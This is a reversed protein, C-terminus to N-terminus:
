PKKVFRWPHNPVNPYGSMLVIKIHPWREHVQRALEIGSMDPMRVDTLLLATEPYVNLIELARRGSYASKVTFGTEEFLGVLLEALPSDDDVILIPRSLDRKYTPLVSSFMAAPDKRPRLIACLTLAPAM